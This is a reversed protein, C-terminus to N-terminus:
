VTLVHVVSCAFRRCRLPTLSAKSRQVRKKVAKSSAFAVLFENFLSWLQRINLYLAALPSM